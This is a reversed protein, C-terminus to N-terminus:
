LIDEACDISSELFDDILERIAVLNQKKEASVICATDLPPLHSTQEQLEKITTELSDQYKLMTDICNVINTISNNYAKASDVLSDLCHQVDEKSITVVGSQNRDEVVPQPELTKSETCNSDNDITIQQKNAPVGQMMLSARISNCIDQSTPTPEDSPEAGEILKRVKENYYYASMCKVILSNLMRHEKYPIIFENFLEKDDWNLSLQTRM